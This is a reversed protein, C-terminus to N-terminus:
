MNAQELLWQRFGVLPTLQAAEPPYVLYYGKPARWVRSALRRLRGSAVADEAMFTPLLVVGLGAVAANLAMSMLQYRPGQASAMQVMQAKPAKKSMGAVKCWESWADPVTSHHILASPPTADSVRKGHLKIWAPSAYPSLELPLVFDQQLGARLGDGFELSADLSATSFDVAGVRTTLSLTIESHTRTFDPLRPILWHSGLSAGVSLALVGGRGKLAMVNSTARELRQLLPTVEDLYFRGAETLKLADRRRVFLSVRLREELTMIQRSVAGQTLHLEKAANTFSQLRASAEFCLLSMTSPLRQMLFACPHNLFPLKDRLRKSQLM